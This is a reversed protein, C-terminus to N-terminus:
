RRFHSSVFLIYIERLQRLNIM